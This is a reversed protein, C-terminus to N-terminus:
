GRAREGEIDAESEIQAAADPEVRKILEFEMKTDRNSGDNAWDGGRQTEEALTFHIRCRGDDVRMGTMLYRSRETGQQKWETEAAFSGGEGTDRVTYGEEFLMTRAEGWVQDLPRNYVYDRSRTNIYDQRASAARIAGCGMAQAMMAAVFGVLFLRARM